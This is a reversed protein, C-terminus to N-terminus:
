NVSNLAARVAATSTGTVHVGVDKLFEVQTDYGQSDLSTGVVHAIVVPIAADRRSKNAETIADVVRKAPNDEAGDGLVVDCVLVGTNKSLLAEEIAEARFSGDIMPHPRGLTYKDDGFDVVAHNNELWPKPASSHSVSGLLISAQHAFTGGVYLARIYPAKAKPLEPIREVDSGTGWAIVDGLTSCIKVNADEESLSSGLFLVATPKGMKKLEQILKKAVGQDPPKSILVIKETLEDNGLWRLGQLASIGGVEASLDRGPM